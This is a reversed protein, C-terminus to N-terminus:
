QARGFEISTLRLKGTFQSIGRFLFRDNGGNSSSIDLTRSLSAGPEFGPGGVM